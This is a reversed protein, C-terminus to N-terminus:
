FNELKELSVLNKQYDLWVNLASLAISYLGYPLKRKIHNARDNVVDMFKNMVKMRDSRNECEKISDHAAALELPEFSEKNIAVTSFALLMDQKLDDIYRPLADPNEEIERDNKLTAAAIFSSEETNINQFTIWFGKQSLEFKETIREDAVLSKILTDEEVTNLRDSFRQKLKKQIKDFEEKLETSVGPELKRADLHKRMDEKVEAVAEKHKRLAEEREADFQEVAANDNQVKQMEEPSAQITEDKM